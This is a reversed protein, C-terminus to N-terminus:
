ARAPQSTLRRLRLSGRDSGLLVHSSGLGAGSRLDRGRCRPRRSALTAAREAPCTILAGGAVMAEGAHTVAPPRQRAAIRAAGERRDATTPRVCLPVGM